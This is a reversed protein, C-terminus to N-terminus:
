TTVEKLFTKMKEIEFQSSLRRMYEVFALCHAEESEIAALKKNVGKIYGVDILALLENM